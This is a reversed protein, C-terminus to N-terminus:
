DSWTWQLEILEIDRRTDNIMATRTRLNCCKNQADIELFRANSNIEPVITQFGADVLIKSIYAVHIKAIGKSQSLSWIRSFRFWFGWIMSEINAEWHETTQDLLQRSGSHVQYLAGYRSSSSPPVHCNVDPHASVLVGPFTPPHHCSLTSSKGGRGKKTVESQARKESPGGERSRDCNKHWRGNHNELNSVWLAWTKIKNKM